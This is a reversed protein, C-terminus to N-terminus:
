SRGEIGRKYVILRGWKNSSGVMSPSAMIREETRADIVGSSSSSSLSITRERRQQGGVEEDGIRGNMREHKDGIGGFM